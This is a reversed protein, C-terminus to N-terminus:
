GARRPLDIVRAAVQGEIWAAVKARQFYLKQGVWVAGPIIGARAHRRITRISIREPGGLAAQMDEATLMTPLAPRHAIQEPTLAPGTM